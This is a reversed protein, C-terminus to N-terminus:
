SICQFSEALRGVWAALLEAASAHTGPDSADSMQILRAPGDLLSDILEYLLDDDEKHDSLLLGAGEDSLVRANYIQGHPHPVLVASEADSGAGGGKDFGCPM